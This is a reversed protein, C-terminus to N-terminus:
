GMMEETERHGLVLAPAQGNVLTYMYIFALYPGQKEHRASFCKFM